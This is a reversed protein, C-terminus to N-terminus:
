LDLKTKMENSLYPLLYKYASKPCEYEKLKIILGLLMYNMNPTSTGLKKILKSDIDKAFGYDILYVDRGKLMYNSLNNDNHFVGATDLAKFIDIIRKQQYKHLSGKQKKMSDLLHGDMKEMVIYKSVTDYDYVKPAIGMKSAKKQLRYEKTLTASSKGKRFTKMAYQKKNKHQVLYTIGEKGRTGLQNIRTYKDLKERKYEEWEDFASSIDAIMSEKSRRPRLCMERGIDRLQPLTYKELGYSM